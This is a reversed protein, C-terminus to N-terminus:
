VANSCVSFCLCYLVICYQLQKNRSQWPSLKDAPYLCKM